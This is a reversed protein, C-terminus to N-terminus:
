ERDADMRMTQRMDSAGGCREGLRCCDVRFTPRQRLTLPLVDGGVEFVLAPLGGPMM